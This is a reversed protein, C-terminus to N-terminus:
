APRPSAFRPSPLSPSPLTPSTLNQHSSALHRSAPRSSALLASYLPSARAVRFVGILKNRGAYLLVRHAWTSSAAM